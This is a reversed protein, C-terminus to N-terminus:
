MIQADPLPELLLDHEHLKRMKEPFGLKQVKEELDEAKGKYYKYMKELLEFYWVTGYSLNDPLFGIPWFGTEQLTDWAQIHGPKNPDFWETISQM